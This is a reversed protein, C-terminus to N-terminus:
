LTYVKDGVTTSIHRFIVLKYMILLRFRPNQKRINMRIGTRITSVTAYENLNLCALVM